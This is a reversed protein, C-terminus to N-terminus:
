DSRGGLIEALRQVQEASTLALVEDGTQLVTDGCPLILRGRRIIAVIVSEEPLNLDVITRGVASSGAAIKEEVLSYRGRRLKLLTMM